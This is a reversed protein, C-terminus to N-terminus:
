QVSEIIELYKKLNSFYDFRNLAKVSKNLM